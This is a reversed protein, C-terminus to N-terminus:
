KLSGDGLGGSWTLSCLGFFSLLSSSCFHSSILIVCKLEEGIIGGLIDVKGLNTDKLFSFSCYFSFYQGDREWFLFICRLSIILCKKGYFIDWLSINLCKEGHLNIFILILTFSWFKSLFFGWVAHIPCNLKSLCVLFM